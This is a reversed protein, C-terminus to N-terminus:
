FINLRIATFPVLFLWFLPRTFISMGKLDVCQPSKQVRLPNEEWNQCQNVGYVSSWNGEPLIPLQWLKSISNNYFIGTLPFIIPICVNRLTGPPMLWYYFLPFWHQWSLYMKDQALLLEASNYVNPPLCCPSQKLYVIPCVFSKPTKQYIQGKEVLYASLLHYLTNQGLPLLCLTAPGNFILLQCEPPSVVHWANDERTLVTFGWLM